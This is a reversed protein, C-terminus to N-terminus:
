SNHLKNIQENKYDMYEIIILKIVTVIPVALFMGLIGFYAGVLSVSFIVLIPSIQLSTGIIKPNIINADIQQIIIVVLAVWIAQSIGGTIATILVAITVAIIAGLFPILNFVGIMFALLVGYKVKMILMVISIMGWVVVSDIIQGTLFKSFVENTRKLNKGFNNYADENLVARFLKKFFELIQKRELLAYISIVLSVFIDLIANAINLIGKAYMGLTELNFIKSLDIKELNEIIQKLNIKYLISDQSINELQNVATEYYSPLNNYLDILSQAITPLIFNILITLILFLILYVILIAIGRARKKIFNPKVQKLTEEVKKCPVYLLYAILAGMIFPMLISFLRSIFESIEGFNDITKYVMIVAVAFLFWYIWKWWINDKEKM